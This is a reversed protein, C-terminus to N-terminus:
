EYGFSAVMFTAQGMIYKKATSETHNESVNITTYRYIDIMTPIFKLIIKHFKYEFSYDSIKIITDKYYCVKHDM